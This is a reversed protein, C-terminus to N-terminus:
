RSSEGSLDPQLTAVDNFYHIECVDLADGTDLIVYFYDEFPKIKASEGAHICLDCSEEEPSVQPHSEVMKM